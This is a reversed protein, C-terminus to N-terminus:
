EFSILGREEGPCTKGDLGQAKPCLAYLELKHDVVRFAGLKQAISDQLQEIEHNEFELILSCRACILHDHHPTEPGAIEYRTQGDGFQRESALGADHLLKLTRYVTAYGVGPSSFRVKQLLEEVSVHDTSHLFAHVILDRQQTHKLGKKSQYEEWLQKYQLLKKADKPAGKQKAMVADYAITDRQAFM